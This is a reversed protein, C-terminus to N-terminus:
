NNRSSTTSGSELSVYMNVISMTSRHRGINKAINPMWVHFLMENEILVMFHKNIYLFNSEKETMKPRLQIRVWAQFEDVDYHCSTFVNTLNDITLLEFYLHSKIIVFHNFVERQEETTDLSQVFLFTQKVILHRRTSTMDNDNNKMCEGIYKKNFTNCDRQLVDISTPLDMSSRQQTLKYYCDKKVVLPQQLPRASNIEFHDIQIPKLKLPKENNQLRKFLHVNNKAVDVHSTTKKETQQLVM